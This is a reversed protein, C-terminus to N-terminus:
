RGRWAGGGALDVPMLLGDGVGLDVDGDDELAEREKGPEGHKLVDFGRQLGAADSGVLAALAAHLHEVRDAEVAEFGGVGLFEGAAHALTDAKGAGEDDLGFDEEHVLGEGSEVDEGGLVQAAFQELEPGVLGHGGLGDEDDGVVDFFGDQEGVADDHEAAIGAVDAGVEADLKGLRAVALGLGEGLEDVVDVLDEGPGVDGGGLRGVLLGAGADAVLALHVVLHQGVGAGAAHGAQEFQEEVLASAVVDVAEGVIEGKLDVVQEGDDVGCLQEAEEFDLFAVGGDGRAAGLEGVGLNEALFFEEAVGGDLM